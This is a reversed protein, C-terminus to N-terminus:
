SRQVGNGPKFLILGGQLPNKSDTHAHCAHHLINFSSLRKVVSAKTAEPMKELEILTVTTIKM